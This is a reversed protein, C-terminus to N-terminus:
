EKKTGMQVLAILAKKNTENMTSKEIYNIFDELQMDDADKIKEMMMQEAIELVQEKNKLDKLTKNKENTGAEKKTKTKKNDGKKQPKPFNLATHKKEYEKNALDIMRFSIMPNWLREEVNIYSRDESIIERPDITKPDPFTDLYEYAYLFHNGGKVSNFIPRPRVKNENLDKRTITRKIVTEGPLLEMLQNPTLLPKEAPSEVFHKHLSLREGSRQTEVITKDGLRESFEKATDYDNSIIYIHNGCNSMITKANKEYRDYIQQYDQVYLDYSMNRGLSVTIQGEMNEIAPMNGLENLIFKIHRPVRGTKSSTAEKAFIFNVQRIFVTSLFHLSKDYDPVSMFVAIPKKGYGIERINFGSEAMMKSVNEFTFVSLKELMTAFISGKTRDGSVEATSYRLKAQDLGPRKNFFMDLASIADNEEDRIRVLETFTYVVTTMNLKRINDYAPVYNIDDPIYKIAADTYINKGAAVAKKFKEKEEKKEEESLKKFKEQKEKHIFRKKENELEDAKVMDEILAIILANLVAADANNWFKDTCTPEDPNFISYAFTQALLQAGAIDGDMWAKKIMDLPNFGMSHLPDAFNLLYVEYGRKELEKKSSKYTELKPDNVIISAKIEARSYVEVTPTVYIQDKGSRTSGLYLNNTPTEEIYLSNGIRSIITGGMGEFPTEKDDIEKYQQKIEELTTFRQDGKQNINVGREDFAIKIKMVFLIDIIICAVITGIFFVMYTSKYEAIYDFDPLCNKIGLYKLPHDLDRVLDSIHNITNIVYNVCGFLFLDILIVLCAIVYNRAFFREIKMVKEPINKEM